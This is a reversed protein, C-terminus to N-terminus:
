TVNSVLSSSAGLFWEEKRGQLLIVQESPEKGVESWFGLNV